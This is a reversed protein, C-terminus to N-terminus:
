NLSDYFDVVWKNREDVRQKDEIIREEYSKIDENLYEINKARITIPDIALLDNEYQELSKEYYSVDGDWEITDQLQQIMFSKIGDHEPTPPTYLLVKELMDDLRIRTEKIKEIQAKYQKINKLVDNTKNKIIEDDSMEIYNALKVKAEELQKPYYTNYSEPKYPKDFPEDRMNIMAGFARACQKAFTNFDTVEGTVVKATYGTPM